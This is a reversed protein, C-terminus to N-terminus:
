KWLCSIGYTCEKRAILINETEYRSLPMRWLGYGNEAECVEKLCTLIEEGKQIRLVVDNGYVRYEM